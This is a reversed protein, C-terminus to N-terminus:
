PFRATAKPAPTNPSRRFIMLKGRTIVPEYRPPLQRLVDESAGWLLLTDYRATADAWFDAWFKEFHAECEGGLGHTEKCFVAKSRAVRMTDELVLHNFRAPPAERYTLPFSKSHAFLLPAATKKAVVYYGWQHLMNRTNESTGRPDFILPLLTANEPVSDIGALFAQRDGELRKYDVALGVFYTAAAFALAPAAFRPLKTPVRVLLAFWLFPIMRSDVHFWNTAVYPMFIYMAGLVALAVPSFFAVKQNANRLGLLGGAVVAFSAISLWTYGYCWEAWFNYVIQWPPLFLNFDYNGTMEGRPELAHLAVSYAALLAAPVLPLLLPLGRAVVGRMPSVSARRFEGAPHLVYLVVILGAVLLAFVHAYWTALALVAMAVGRLPRPQAAQAKALVLFGLALPVALAYDLMGMSVFWNHIMPFLFLSGVLMRRRADARGAPTDDGGFALLVRPFVFSNAALVLAAFLKAAIIFGFRSGVIDLFAFLAANTKLYGNAVFEPWHGPDSQITMAALHNPLDQFPPVPTLLLPTASAIFFVVSIATALADDSSRAALGALRTRLGALARWAGTFGSAAPSTPSTLTEASM